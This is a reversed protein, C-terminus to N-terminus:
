LVAPAQGERRTDIGIELTGGVRIDLVGGVGIELSAEDESESISGSGELVEGGDTSNRHLRHPSGALDSSRKSPRRQGVHGDLLSLFPRGKMCQGNHRTTRTDRLSVQILFTQPALNLYRTQKSAKLGVFTAAWTSSNEFRGDRSTCRRHLHVPSVYLYVIRTHLPFVTSMVNCRAPITSACVRSIKEKSHCIRHFFLRFSALFPLPLLFWQTSHSRGFVGGLWSTSPKLAHM